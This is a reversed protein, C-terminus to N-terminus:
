SKIGFIIKKTLRVYAKITFGIIKRFPELSGLFGLISLFIATIQLNFSSRFFSGNYFFLNFFLFFSFTMILASLFTGGIASENGSITAESFQKFSWPRVPPESVFDYAKNLAAWVHIGFLSEVEPIEGILFQKTANIEFPISYLYQSKFVSTGNRAIASPDDFVKNIIFGVIKHSLEYESLIEVLHQTSQFSTTDSEVVLIIDDVARCVSVSEEDIGGRCDIVM